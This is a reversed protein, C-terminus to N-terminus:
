SLGALSPSPAVSLKAIDIRLKACSLNKYKWVINSMGGEEVPQKEEREELITTLGSRGLQSCLVAALKDSYVGASWMTLGM